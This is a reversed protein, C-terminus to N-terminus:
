SAGDQEKYSRNLPNSAQTRNNATPIRWTNTVSWPYRDTEELVQSLLIEHITRSAPYLQHAM